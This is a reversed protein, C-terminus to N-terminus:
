RGQSRKFRMTIMEDLRLAEKRRRDAKYKEWRKEKLKELVKTERAVEVLYAQKEEAVSILERVVKREREIRIAQGQIFEHGGSIRTVDGKGCMEEISHITQRTQDVQDYMRRIEALKEDVRAQAELYERRAEDELRRRHKLLSEFSFKFTM